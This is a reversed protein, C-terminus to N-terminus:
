TQPNFCSAQPKAEPLLSLRAIIQSM